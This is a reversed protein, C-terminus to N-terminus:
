TESEKKPIIFVEQKWLSIDFTGFKRLTMIGKLDPKKPNNSKEYPNLYISGVSIFNGREDSQCVQGTYCYSEITEPKKIM